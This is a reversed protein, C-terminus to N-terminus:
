AELKSIDLSNIAIRFAIRPEARFALTATEGELDYRARM